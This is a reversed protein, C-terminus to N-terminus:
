TELTLGKGEPKGAVNRDFRVDTKRQERRELPGVVTRIETNQLMNLKQLSSINAGQGVEFGPFWGKDTTRLNQNLIIAAVRRIQLGDGGVAVRPLAMGHHCRLVFYQQLDVIVSMDVIRFKSTLDASKVYM